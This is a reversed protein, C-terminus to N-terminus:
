AASAVLRRSPTEIFIFRDGRGAIVIEARDTERLKVLYIGSYLDKWRESMQAHVQDLLTSIASDISYDNVDVVLSPSEQIAQALDREFQWRARPETGDLRAYAYSEDRPYLKKRFARM